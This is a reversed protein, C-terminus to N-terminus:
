RMHRLRDIERDNEAIRRQIRNIERDPYVCRSRLVPPLNYVCANYQDNAISTERALDFRLRENDDRLRRIDADIQARSPRPPVPVVHHHPPPPPPVPAAHHPPPPPPVPVAHHHPAPPPPVPAAHHYPAPPPPVPAAHHGPGPHHNQPGHHNDCFRSCRDIHCMVEGGRGICDRPVDPRPQAMAFGPIFLMAAITGSGFLLHWKM